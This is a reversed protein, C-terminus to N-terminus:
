HKEHKREAPLNQLDDQDLDSLLEDPESSAGLRQKGRTETLRPKAEGGGTNDLEFFLAL